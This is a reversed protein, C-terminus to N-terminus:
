DLIHTTSVYVAAALETPDVGIPVPLGVVLPQDPPMNLTATITGMAYYNGVVTLAESPTDDPPPVAVIYSEVAHTITNTLAGLLAGYNSKVSDESQLLQIAPLLEGPDPADPQTPEAPDDELIGSGLAPLLLRYAFDDPAPTIPGEDDPTGTPTRALHEINDPVQGLPTVVEVSDASIEQFIYVAGASYAMPAGAFILDDYVAVSRGLEGGGDDEIIYKKTENWTFDEEDFEFRYVAGWQDIDGLQYGPAGIAVRQNRIAVASGFYAYEQYDSAHLIAPVTSGLTLILVGGAMSLYDIEQPGDMIPYSASYAGIVMFIGDLDIASGFQGGRLQNVSLFEGTVPEFYSDVSSRYHVVKGFHDFLDVHDASPSGVLLDMTNDRADVGIATGFGSNMEGMNHLIAAYADVTNFTNTQWEGSPARAYQYVAGINDRRVLLELSNYVYSDAGPAGALIIREDPTIAVSRGLNAFAGMTTVLGREATHLLNEEMQTMRWTPDDATREVIVIAGNQSTSLSRVYPAGIVITNGQVAVSEGLWGYPIERPFTVEAQMEWHEPDTPDLAYIYVMGQEQADGVDTQPATVVLTEGDFAIARGFGKAGAPAPIQIRRTITETSTHATTPITPSLSHPASTNSSALLPQSVSSVILISTTLLCVLALCVRKHSVNM